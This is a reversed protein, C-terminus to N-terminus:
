FGRRHNAFHTVQVQHLADELFRRERAADTAALAEAYTMRFTELMRMEPFLYDPVARKGDRFELTTDESM